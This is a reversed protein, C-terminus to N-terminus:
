LQASQMSVEEQNIPIPYSEVEHDFFPMFHQQDLRVYVRQQLDLDVYREDRLGEVHLQAEQRGCSATSLLGRRTRRDVRECVLRVINQNNSKAFDRLTKHFRASTRVVGDDFKVWYKMVSGIDKRDLVTAPSYPPSDDPRGCLYPPPETEIRILSPRCMVKSKHTRLGM